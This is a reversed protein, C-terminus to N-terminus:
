GKELMIKKNHKQHKRDSPLVLQVNVNTGSERNLAPTMRPGQDEGALGDLRRQERLQTRLFTVIESRPVTIAQDACLVYVNLPM